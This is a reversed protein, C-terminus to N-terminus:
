MDQCRRLNWVVQWVTWYIAGAAPSVTTPCLSGSAQVRPFDRRGYSGGRLFWAPHLPYRWMNPVMCHSHRINPCHTTKWVGDLKPIWDDEALGFGETETPMTLGWWDIADWFWAKCYSEDPHMYRHSIVKLNLHWVVILNVGVLQAPGTKEPSNLCHGRCGPVGFSCSVKSRSSCPQWM